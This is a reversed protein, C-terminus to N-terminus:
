FKYGILKEVEEIRKLEEAEERSDKEICNRVYYDFIRAEKKIKKFQQSKTM